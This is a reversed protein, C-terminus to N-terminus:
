STVAGRCAALVEVGEDFGTRGREQPHLDVEFIADAVPETLRVATEALARAGKSV